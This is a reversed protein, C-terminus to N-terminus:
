SGRSEPEDCSGQEWGPFNLSDRKIVKLTSIAGQILQREAQGDQSTSL